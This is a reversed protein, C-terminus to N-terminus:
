IGLKKYYDYDLILSSMTFKDYIQKNINDIYGQTVKNGDFSKFEKTVSNYTGENTIFSRDSLIALGEDTSFIDRGMLLRSDYELGYLNYLTPLIDLGSVVKNIETKEIARNYMILTTHYNEFKDSRDAKSIENMEKETLGYPFHDPAVVILTDNLKGEEELRKILSELAKDLEIQTSLYAKVPTSYKLNKVKSKNKSAMNNGYFNYNLHGSVTMFYTLFPKDKNIYYDFTGNIMELDSNPWHKCNMKKELGNGCGYYEFGINTHSLERSYYKYSHNHFAYTNYGEKKFMNGIAMPMSLNSTKKFSWVGEKPILSMLNMYEGDSTSVPYLPQYYNNFVFSNNAMKYLTPTLDKDIAITDFAEATIFILNKGKFMGTYKNKETAEVNKFYNHMSILKDDDTESILKDFDIDYKNYEKTEEKFTNNSKDYNISEKFNTFYRYIDITEMTLLGTKEITIMPAHTNFLLKKLSYIEKNDFKIVLIIGLFSLIFSSTISIVVKKNRIYDFRKNFIIYLIYPILIIIFIYWIRLIVDIIMEYFQMVQGTGTTLSFFSFISDYFNFYVIQALTVLTLVSTLIISIIRNVKENFLCTLASFVVIFPISFLIVMLTSISLINKIIFLRYVLELFLVYFTYWLCIKIKNNKM